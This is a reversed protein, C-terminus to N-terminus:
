NKDKENKIGGENLRQLLRPNSMFSEKALVNIIFFFKKDLINYKDELCEIFEEMDILKKFIGEVMFDFGNNIKYISNISEHKILHQKMDEKDKKDVKFIINVVADYGLRTFNLISTHKIILSEEHSRLRDFITSVPIGTEKSMKTLPMRADKRLNTIIKIDKEKM